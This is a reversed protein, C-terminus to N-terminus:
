NIFSVESNGDTESHRTRAQETELEQKALKSLALRQAEVAKAIKREADLQEEILRRHLSDVEARAHDIVAKMENATM